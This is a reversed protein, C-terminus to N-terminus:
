RARVASVGIVAIALVVAVAPIQTSEAKGGCPRTPSEADDGRDLAHSGNM